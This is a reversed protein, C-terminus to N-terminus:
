TRPCGNDMWFRIADKLDKKSIKSQAVENCYPGITEFIFNEEDERVKMEVKTIISEVVPSCAEMKYGKLPDNSINDTGEFPEAKFGRQPDFTSLRSDVPNFGVNQYRNM